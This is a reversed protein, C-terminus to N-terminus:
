EESTLVHKPKNLIVLVEEIKEFDAFPTVSVEQFIGSSRKIVGAVRGIRLGKPFVGDLGSSIITDGAQIENKRLVYKFICDAAPAGKIIGRARTRQVLGDVANNQDIILLVKAYYASADTVQGVIGQPVVVPFGIDLGDVRGKDIIVSKFWPSPDKGIVEASLVQRNMSQKFDLLDRLRINSLEIERYRTNQELARNLNQKLRENEGATSVLYFYHDWIDGVFQFLRSFAEQFPAVIVIVVRGLGSVPYRQRSTVSLIIINVTFFLIVGVVIVMKKSFM